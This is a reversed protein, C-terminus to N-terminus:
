LTKRYCTIYNVDAGKRLRFRRTFPNYIFSSVQQLRLGNQHSWRYLESPKILDKYAHTGRPLIRLVYEGGIIAFLFAKLSRDITSFFVYGGPKLLKACAEVISRPDPVHELMEMCCVVDFQEPYAAAMEECSKLRYDAKIGVAAAHLKAIELTQNSLDIGTAEAGARALSETLIGGGCGVDIVRKGAIDVQDTIFTLRLPNIRHLMGMSGQENWWLAALKSFKDLESASANTRADMNM